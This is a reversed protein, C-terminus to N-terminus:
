APSYARAIRAAVRCNNYVLAKNAAVSKGGTSSHLEALLFPTIAKGRIGQEEARKLAREINDNIFAPDLEDKDPIPVAIIIGNQIGLDKKIKVIRAAEEASEVRYDVPLGSERTYFAPFGSAQFGLVTVGATELYELTLPLDLISKAGACIVAVDTRALEEMDASIDFSQQANRHVGGIGGTAFFSIGAMRAAIMTAAVTTAGSEGRAIVAAMDRRSCKPIERHKAFFELEEGSLGIKMKGKVIGITAPIAGEERIEKECTEGCELNEPYNFGHSIITTELAVLPLGKELADKVESSFELYENMTVGSQLVTFIVLLVILQLYTRNNYLM